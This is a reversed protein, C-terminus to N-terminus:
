IKISKILIKGVIDAFLQTIIDIEKPTVCLSSSFTSRAILPVGISIVPINLSQKNIPTRRNDLGSGPVLGSNTIQISSFLNKESFCTLSDLCIVTSPSLEQSLAKVVSFSEIGTLGFVSPKCLLLSDRKTSLNDIISPGLSDATVRQNGLGVVLVRNCDILSSLVLSATSVIERELTKSGLKNRNFGVSFYDGNERSFSKRNKDNVSYSSLTCLKGKKIVPEIHLSEFEENWLNQYFDM